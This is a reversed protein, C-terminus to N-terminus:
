YTGEKRTFSEVKCLTEGFIRIFKGHVEDGEAEKSLVVYSGWQKNEVIFLAAEWTPLDCNNAELISSINSHLSPKIEEIKIISKMSEKGTQIESKCIDIVKHILGCNNCQSFKPIVNGDDSMASFVIFQHAPPKELNKFQPLVCRCKILHKHGQM